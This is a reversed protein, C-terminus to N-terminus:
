KGPTGAPLRASPVAGRSFLVRRGRRGNVLAIGAIILATGAVIRADLPESLFLVGLVIGVVPIVYAVAVTRTAGWNKLLRFVALYALSTGLVGLWVVAFVAALGPRAEWPRELAIAAAGTMLFAFTVQFVAPIMPDLGHVNRRAYVAGVGYCTAAAVLAVAGALETSAGGTGGTLVVVGVFGIALGLVSNARLPEEPIFIPALVGAVLPAIGTLIAALESDVHRESWTILAFPIAINVAGIVV